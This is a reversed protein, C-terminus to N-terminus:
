PKCTPAAPAVSCIATRLGSLQSKLEQIENQQKEILTQQEKVANVLVTTIQQYKVGEIEGGKNHTVLLPEVKHVEEAAFGIDRVGANTWTFEIPNLKRIVNLGGPYEAVGTKYRLSSSCASLQNTINRCLSLIGATGLSVLQVTGNISMDGPVVVTDQGASRGLAITNSSAVSANAGIATAFTLNGSTVEANTGILTNAFGTINNTGSGQGFFANSSAATM